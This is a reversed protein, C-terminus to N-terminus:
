RWDETPMTVQGSQPSLSIVLDNDAGRMLVPAAFGSLLGVEVEVGAGTGLGSVAVGSSTM